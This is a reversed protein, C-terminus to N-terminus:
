LFVHRHSTITRDILSLYKGGLSVDRTPELTSRHLVVFGAERLTSVVREIIQCLVALSPGVIEFDDLDQPILSSM